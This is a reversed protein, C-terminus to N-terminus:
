SAGEMPMFKEYIEVHSPNIKKEEDLKKFEMRILLCATESIEIDKEAKGEDNWKVLGGEVKIEMKATEEETPLLAKRATEICRMNAFNGQQPLVGLLAYRQGINLKKTTM